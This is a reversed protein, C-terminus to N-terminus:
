LSADEDARRRDGPVDQAPADDVRQVGARADLAAADPLRLVVDFRYAIVGEREGAEMVSDDGHLSAAVVVKRPGLFYNQSTCRFKMNKHPDFRQNLTFEAM